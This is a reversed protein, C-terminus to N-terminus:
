YTLLNNMVKLLSIVKKNRIQENNYQSLLPQLNASIHILKDDIEPLLYFNAVMSLGQIINKLKICYKYQKHKYAIDKNQELKSSIDQIFTFTNVAEIYNNWQKSILYEIDTCKINLIINNLNLYVSSFFHEVKIISVNLCNSAVLVINDIMLNFTTRFCTNLKSIGSDNHSKFIDYYKSISKIKKNYEENYLKNKQIRYQKINSIFSSVYSINNNLFLVLDEMDSMIHTLVIHRRYKHTEINKNLYNYIYNIFNRQKRIIICIKKNKIKDLIHRENEIVIRLILAYNNYKYIIYLLTKITFKIIYKFEIDYFQLNTSTLYLNVFKKICQDNEM